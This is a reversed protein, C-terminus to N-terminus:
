ILTTGVATFDRCAFFRGSNGKPNTIVWGLSSSIIFADTSNNTSTWLNVAVNYNFPSWNTKVGTGEYRFLNILEFLNTLRWGSTYIGISLSVCTSMAVSYNVDSLAGTRRYGLVKATLADWTDWDIMINNAYTQGGLEDTFRNTTTNVTPSGDAHLPPATLTNLNRGKRLNGDDGTAFSTTQGTRMLTATGSILITDGNPVIITSGDSGIPAVPNGDEDELTINTTSGSAVTLFPESDLTITADACPASEVEWVQDMANWSGSPIGDLEVTISLSDEAVIDGVTTGNIQVFSDAIVVQGGDITGVPNSGGNVVPVNIVGGSEVTGFENGNVTVTSLDCPLATITIIGGNVSPVNYEGYDWGNQDLVQFVTNPVIYSTNNDIQIDWSGDSNALNVFGETPEYDACISTSDYFSLRCSLIIGSTNADFVNIVEVGKVGDITRMQDSDNALSLFKRACLRAKQILVDHQDPTFDLETKYLIMLQIPYYEQIAGSSVIEFDNQIPEDLYVVPFIEEDAFINQFDREGHKFSFNQGSIVIQSVVSEVFSKVSM